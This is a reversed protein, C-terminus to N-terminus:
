GYEKMYSDIGIHEIKTAKFNTDYIDLDQINITYKDFYKIRDHSSRDISGLTTILVKCTHVGYHYELYDIIPSTMDSDVILINLLYSKGVDISALSDFKIVNDSASVKVYKNNTTLKECMWSPLRNYYQLFRDSIHAVNRLKDSLFLISANDNFIFGHLATVLSILTKGSQRPGSIILKDSAINDLSINTFTSTYPKIGDYPCDVLVYTEAFYDINNKCREWEYHQQTNHTM